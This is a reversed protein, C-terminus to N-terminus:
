RAMRSSGILAPIAPMLTTRSRMMAQSQARQDGAEGASDESPIHRHKIRLGNEADFVGDEGNYEDQEAAAGGDDSRDEAHDDEVADVVGDTNRRRLVKLEDVPRQDHPQHQEQRVPQNRQQLAPADIDGSVAGNSCTSPTTFRKPPKRASSLKLKLMPRPSIRPSTPGFPEPLVVQMLTM